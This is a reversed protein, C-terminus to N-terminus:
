WSTVAGSEREREREREREGAAEVTVLNVRYTLETQDQNATGKRMEYGMVVNKKDAEECVNKLDKHINRRM